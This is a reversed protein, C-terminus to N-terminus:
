SNLFIGLLFRQNAKTRVLFIAIMQVTNSKNCHRNPSNRLANLAYLRLDSKPGLIVNALIKVEPNKQLIRAFLREHAVIQCLVIYVM